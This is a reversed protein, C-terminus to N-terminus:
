VNEVGIKSQVVALTQASSLLIKKAKDLDFNCKILVDEVWDTPYPYGVAFKEIQNNTMKKM